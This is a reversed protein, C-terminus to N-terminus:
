FKCHGGNKKKRAIPPVYKKKSHGFLTIKKKEPAPFPPWPGFQPLLKKEKINKKSIGGKDSLDLSKPVLFVNGKGNKDERLPIKLQKGPLNGKKNDGL